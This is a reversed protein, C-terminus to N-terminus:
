AGDKWVYQLMERELLLYLFPNRGMVPLCTKAPLWRRPSGTEDKRPRWGFLRRYIRPAVGLFPSFVVKNGDSDSTAEISDGYLDFALSKPYPEVFVVRGIGSSVIHPACQHCPFTTTYLTAGEIARGKQAANTIALMEAHVARGYEIADMVHSGQVNPNPGGDMISCRRSKYEADPMEKLWGDKRLRDLLDLLATRRYEMSASRQTKFERGDPRDGEWYAGGGARPVENCGLALVVGRQDTIVAGVQRTLDASRLAAAAALFMSQEDISPTIFPDGMLLRFFRTAARNLQDASEAPLFVDALHFTQSLRQGWPASTDFEDRVLLEHAKGEFDSAHRAGRDSRMREALERQRHQADAYLGVLIFSDGYVARFLGVEDPTKLSKFVFARRPWVPAGYRDQRAGRDDHAESAAAARRYHLGAIAQAALAALDKRAERFADGADMKSLYREYTDTAGKFFHGFGDVNALNGILSVLETVFGFPALADDIAARIRATDIGVAGVLGIFLEPNDHPRLRELATQNM